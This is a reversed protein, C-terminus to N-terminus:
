KEVLVKALLFKLNSLSMLELYLNLKDDVPDFRFLTCIVLDLLPKPM